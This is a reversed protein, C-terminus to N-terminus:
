CNSFQKEALELWDEPQPFGVFFQVVDSQLVVRLLVAARDSETRQLYSAGFCSLGSHTEVWHFGVIPVGM